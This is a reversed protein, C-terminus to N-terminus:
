QTPYDFDISIRGWFARGPENVKNSTAFFGGFGGSGDRNLHETYKKDSLNDIGFKLKVAEHPQYGMELSYVTFGPTPGDSDLSLPNGHNDHVRTQRDVLRVKFGANFPGYNYDLKISGELPPTLALPVDQTLNQAYTYALDGSIKWNEDFQYSYLFEGGVREADINFAEAGGRVLIYDDIRSYFGYVETTSKETEYLLKLDVENNKEPALFFADTSYVEWYDPARQAHGYGLAVTLPIEDFGHEGRFFGSYLNHRSKQHSGSLVLTSVEGAAHMLDTKTLLSDGRAGGVFRTGFPSDWALEAYAGFNEFNLIPNLPKNTRTPFPEFGIEVQERDPADAMADFADRRYSIGMSLEFDETPEFVADSSVYTQQGVQRMLILQTLSSERISFNDMTHDVITHSLKFDLEKFWPTLNLTEFALTYKDQNLDTADMHITANAIQGDTHTTSLELRTDKNPTFGIFYRDSWTDYHTLEVTQGGGQEYDGGRTRNGTYGLYAYENGVSSDFSFNQRNFSGYYYSSYLQVGLEDYEPKRREFDVAGGISNGYKVSQPGKLLLLNKINGPKVYVTAPDMRHNCVGGVPVGDISINLRTGGLGRMVPDSGIGGQRILSIGPTKKLIDAGDNATSLDMQVDQVQKFSVDAAEGSITMSEFEIKSEHQQHEDHDAFAWGGFQNIILIGTIIPKSRVRM